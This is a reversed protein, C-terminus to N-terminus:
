KRPSNCGLLRTKRFSEYKLYKVESLDVRSHIWDAFRMCIEWSAKRTATWGGRINRQHVPNLHMTQKLYKISIGLQHAM